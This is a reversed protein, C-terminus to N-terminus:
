RRSPLTVDIAAGAPRYLPSTKTIDFAINAARFADQVLQQPGTAGDETEQVIIGTPSAAGGIGMVASETVTWGGARFAEVIDSTLARVSTAGMDYAIDASSPAGSLTRILITRQEDALRVPMLSQVQPQMTKLDEEIQVRAEREREVVGQLTLNERRIQETERELVAARENASAARENASATREENAAIREDGYREKVAGTWVTGITGGLVLVAGFVLAVSSLNYLFNAASLSIGFM